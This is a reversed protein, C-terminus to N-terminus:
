ESIFNLSTRFHYFSKFKNNRKIYIMKVSAVSVFAGTFKYMEVPKVFLNLM